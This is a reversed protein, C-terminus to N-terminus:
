LQVSVVQPGERKLLALGLEFPQDPMALSYPKRLVDFAIARNYKRVGALQAEFADHRLSTIKRVAGAPAFAPDFDLVRTARGHQTNLIPRPSNSPLMM